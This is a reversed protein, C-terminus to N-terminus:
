KKFFYTSVINEHKLNAAIAFEAFSEMIKKEALELNNM